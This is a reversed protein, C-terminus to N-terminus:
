PKRRELEDIAQSLKFEARLLIKSKMVGTHMQTRDYLAKAEQKTLLVVAYYDPVKYTQM